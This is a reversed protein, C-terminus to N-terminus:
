CLRVHVLTCYKPITMLLPGQIEGWCIRERLRVPRASTITTGAGVNYFCFFTNGPRKTFLPRMRAANMKLINPVAPINMLTIPLTLYTGTCSIIVITRSTTCNCKTSVSVFPLPLQEHPLLLLLVLNSIPFFLCLLLHCPWFFAPGM